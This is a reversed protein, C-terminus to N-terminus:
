RDCRSGRRGVALVALSWLCFAASPEPVVAVRLFDIEVNLRGTSGFLSQVQIQNLGPDVVDNGDFAFGFAPQTFSATDVPLTLLHFAGDVPVGSIDFDFGHEEATDPGDIDIMVARVATAENDPLIKINLEWTAQSADFDQPEFVGSGPSTEVVFDVGVGGFVGNVSDSDTVDLVLSTPTNVVSSDFDGFTFGGFGNLANTPYANEDFTLTSAGAAPMGLVLCLMVLPTLAVPKM